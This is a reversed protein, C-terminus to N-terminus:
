VGKPTSKKDGVRTRTLAGRKPREHPHTLLPEEEVEVAEEQHAAGQARLLGEKRLARWYLLALLPMRIPECQGHAQDPASLSQKSPCDVLLSRPEPMVRPPASSALCNSTTCPTDDPASALQDHKSPVSDLVLQCQRDTPGNNRWIGGQVLSRYTAAEAVGWRAHRPRKIM